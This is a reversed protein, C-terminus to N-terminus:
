VIVLTKGLDLTGAKGGLLDMGHRRGGRFRRRALREVAREIRLHDGGNQGAMPVSIFGSPSPKMLSILISIAGIMKQVTTTPMAPMSSMFFTPLVPPRANSYKSTTLVMESMMPRIMTLRTCGPAPIFTSGFARSVLLM